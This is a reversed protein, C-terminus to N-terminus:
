PRTSTTPPAFRPPLDVESLFLPNRHQETIGRAVEPERAWLVTNLGQGSLLTAIATGWSGAGIVAIRTDDVM